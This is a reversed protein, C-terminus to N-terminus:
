GSEHNRSGRVETWPPQYTSSCAGVLEDGRYALHLVRNARVGADGMELRNEVDYADLREYTSGPRLLDRLQHTYARNVMAATREALTADDRAMRTTGIIFRVPELSDAGSPAAAPTDAAREDAEADEAGEEEAALARDLQTLMAQLRARRAM